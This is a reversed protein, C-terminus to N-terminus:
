WFFNGGGSLGLQKAFYPMRCAWYSPKTKDNRTDCKHRAAFSKRAEPDNLKIKLGTTDGWSVKKINGSSPDKVYVYYKKPGGAKPKNLEPQKEEEEEIMPSDLPVMEGNHEAFYGIDSEVFWLNAGSLNLKGEKHLERAENFVQYYRMSGVRYLEGLPIDNELHYIVTEQIDLHETFSKVKKKEKKEPAQGPTLNRAYENSADTGWEHKQPSYKETM